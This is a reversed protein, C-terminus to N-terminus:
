QLTVEKQIRTQHDGTLRLFILKVKENIATCPHQPTMKADEIQRSTINYLVDDRGLMEVMLGVKAPVEVEILIKVLVELLAVDGEYPLNIEITAKQYM